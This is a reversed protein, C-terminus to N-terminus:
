TDRSLAAKAKGLAALLEDLRVLPDSGIMSSLPDTKVGDLMTPPPPWTQELDARIVRSVSVGSKRAEDTLADVLWQPLCITLQRTREEPPLRPRGRATM